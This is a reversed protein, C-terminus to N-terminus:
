RLDAERRDLDERGGAMERLEARLSRCGLRVKRDRGIIAHDAQGDRGHDPPRIRGEPRPPSKGVWASPRVERATPAEEMGGPRDQGGKRDQSGGGRVHWSLKGAEGRNCPQGDRRGPEHASPTRKGRGSPRRTYRWGESFSAM